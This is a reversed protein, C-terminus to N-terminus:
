RRVCKKPPSVILRERCSLLNRHPFL